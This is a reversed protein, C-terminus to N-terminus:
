RPPPTRSRREADESSGRRMRADRSRNRSYRDTDRERREERPSAQEKDKDRDRDRGRDLEGLRGLRRKRKPAEEQKDDGRSGRKDADRGRKPDLRGADDRGCEEDIGTRLDRLKKEPIRPFRTDLYKMELFVNRAFKSLTATVSNNIGRPAILVPTEDAVLDHVWSLADDIPQTFRVYLVGLCKLAIDKDKLLM